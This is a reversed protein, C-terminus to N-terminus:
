TRNFLLAPQRFMYFSPEGETTHYLGDTWWIANSSSALQNPCLWEHRQLRYYPQQPIRTGWNGLQRSTNIWVPLPLTQLQQAPLYLQGKMVAFKRQINYGNAESFQFQRDTFHKLKRYLTDERNLGFWRALNLHGEGLYYKLAVEWHEIEQTQQNLVLFDIEGLTIAGAIKQISHGLLQYPHYADDLLWFWLLNEFRLGLRTSKLRAVFDHLPQPQQDLQYLRKEYNQYLVQWTANDHLCFKNKIILESPVESLINPSAIAFALQRVIPNKFKLWPEFFCPSDVVSSM